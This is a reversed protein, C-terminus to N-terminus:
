IRASQQIFYLNHCTVTKTQGDVTIDKQAATGNRVSISELTLMPEQQVAEVTIQDLVRANEDMLYMYYTGPSVPRYNLTVTKTEGSAIVTSLEKINASSIDSPAGESRSSYLYIGSYKATGNNTVEVEIGNQMRTCLATPKIQGTLLTVNPHIKHTMGQSRFLM